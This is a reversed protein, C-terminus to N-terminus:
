FNKNKLEKGLSEAVYVVAAVIKSYQMRKPGVIGVTGSAEGIKYEKTILSYETFQEDRNEKGIAITVDGHAINKSKDMLHIIVDKNEILEIISHLNDHDEFEPQQLVKSTGSIKVKESIRKDNFIKDVSDIFVRIVPKVDDRNYDAVRESFTRRIESFKLGSLRENFFKQVFELKKSDIESNIELSITRILGTRITVIVLIRISSLKIIQIKELVANDFKPFTVCALQHTLNSLLMSTISLLDEIESYDSDFTSEVTQRIGETVIPPEMLSDVYFRYGLDTPIRGASTHPHGLLGSDELDSMINRITAPSLGMEYKKSINRSGVPNATLIFQQVVNRLISKERDTLKCDEM